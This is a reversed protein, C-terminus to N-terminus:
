CSGELVTQFKARWRSIGHVAGVVSGLGRVVRKYSNLSMLRSGRADKLAPGALSALMNTQHAVMIPGTRKERMFGAGQRMAGLDSGAKGTRAVRKLVQLVIRWVKTANEEQIDGERSIVWELWRFNSELRLNVVGVNIGVPTHAQVNQVLPRRRECYCFTRLLAVEIPKSLNTRDCTSIQAQLEPKSRNEISLDWGPRGM